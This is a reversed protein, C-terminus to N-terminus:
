GVKDGRANRGLKSCDLVLFVCSHSFKSFLSLVILYLFYLLMLSSQFERSNNFLLKILSQPYKSM